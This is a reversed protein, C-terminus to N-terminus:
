QAVPDLRTWASVGCGGASPDTKDAVGDGATDADSATAEGFASTCFYLDSNFTTWDLRSFTGDENEGVLYDGSNTYSTITLVFVGFGIASFDQTWTTQTIEHRGGFNGDYSGIIELETSADDDSCAGLIIGAMVALALVRLLIGVLANGKTSTLSKTM